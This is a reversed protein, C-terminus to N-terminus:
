LLTEQEELEERNQFNPYADDHGPFNLSQPHPLDGPLHSTTLVFVKWGVRNLKHM